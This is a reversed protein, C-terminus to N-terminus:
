FIMKRRPLIPLYLILCFQPLRVLALVVLLAITTFKKHQFGSMNIKILEWFKKPVKPYTAIKKQTSEKQLGTEPILGDGICMEDLRKGECALGWLNNLTVWAILAINIIMIQKSSISPITHPIILYLPLALWLGTLAVARYILSPIRKM